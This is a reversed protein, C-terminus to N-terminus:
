RLLVVVLMLVSPVATNVLAIILWRGRVRLNSELPRDTALMLFAAACSLVIALWGIAYFWVFAQFSLHRAYGRAMVLHWTLWVSLGANCLSPLLLGFFGKTARKM